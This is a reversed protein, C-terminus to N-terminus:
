KCDGVRKGSWSQNMEMTEGNHKMKSKMTGSYSTSGMTMTGTATMANEGKCEMTWTATNGQLKYDKLQCNKDDSQPITRKGDELDKKTYCHRMVQPQMAGQPMGAMDVKMTIEWLGPQMEAAAAFAAPLFALLPLAAISTKM